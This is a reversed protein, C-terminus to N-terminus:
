RDAAWQFCIGYGDPDHLYMQKMRYPAITPPKVEVGKSRLEAYAADVDPCSFYLCTDDHAASRAPDRRMPREQDFEYATNLMFEAKGLELLVWHFRDEGGLAPSTMKITCGLKDRYFRISTPMDYVQLLPALGRVELAM